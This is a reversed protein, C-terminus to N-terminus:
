LVIFTTADAFIGGCTGASNSVFRNYKLTSKEAEIGGGTSASNDELVTYRTFYLTSSHACNYHLFWVYCYFSSHNVPTEM